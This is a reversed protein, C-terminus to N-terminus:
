LPNDIGQRRAEQDKEIINIGEQEWVAVQNNQHAEDEMNGLDWVSVTRENWMMDQAEAATIEKGGALELAVAEAEGAITEVKNMFGTDYHEDVNGFRLKLDRIASSLERPDIDPSLDEDKEEDNQIDVLVVSTKAKQQMKQRLLTERAPKSEMRLLQRLLASAPPVKQDLEEQVRDQLKSLAAVAGKGAEGAAKAQQVNAELLQLLADDVKGQRVLGAMKGEMVIANPSQLVSKLTEAATQMRSSMENNVAGQIAQLKEAEAGEAKALSQELQQLFNFDVLQYNLSIEDAISNETELLTKMMLRYTEEGVIKMEPEAEMMALLVRQATTACRRDGLWALQYGAVYPLALLHVLAM